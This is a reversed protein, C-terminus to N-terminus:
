HSSSLSAEQELPTTPDCIWFKALILCSSTVMLMKVSVMWFEWVMRWERRGLVMTGGPWSPKGSAGM